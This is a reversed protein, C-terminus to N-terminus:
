IQMTPISKILELGSVEVSFHREPYQLASKMKSAGIKAGIRGERSGENEMERWRSEDTLKIGFIPSKGGLMYRVLRVIRVFGVQLAQLAKKLDLKDPKLETLGSSATKLAM